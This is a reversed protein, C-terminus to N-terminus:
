DAQGAAAMAEEPDRYSKYHIVRGDRFTWIYAVLADFEIGTYRAKSRMRHVSVFRDGVSVIRELELLLWETGEIWREVARAVGAPGRYVDGAYDPLATDEFVVDPDLPQLDIAEPQGARSSVNEPTFPERGWAELFVRLNELNQEPMGPPEGGM